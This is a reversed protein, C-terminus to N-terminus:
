TNRRYVCHKMACSECGEKHCKTATRSLGIVATVSKTPVMMFSGTLSLGIKKSAKLVEIVAAQCSIDFDGYGPSFRPRLFYGADAAETRIKEQCADCVSEVLAAAAAQLIVCKAIATVEYRHLLRDVGAGLTVAMVAARDCDRLNKFLNKSQVQMFGFDLCGEEGTQLPYFEYVYNPVAVHILEQICEEVMKKTTEDPTKRGLGLYRFVEKRNIPYTDEM